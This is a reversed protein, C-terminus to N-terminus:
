QPAAIRPPPPTRPTDYTMIFDAYLEIPSAAMTRVETRGRTKTM